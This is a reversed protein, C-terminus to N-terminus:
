KSRGIRSSRDFSTTSLMAGVMSAPERMPLPWRPDDGRGLRSGPDPSCEPCRPDARPEELIMEGTLANVRRYPLPGIEPRALGTVSFLFENAAHAAGVANLTIVSPAVVTPDEVYRQATREDETAAEEQLRGPPILGNCWLCGAGPSAPRVVSFVDLLRGTAKEVSAKSGVQAGPILYQATIANYLLRCRMSDAALFLYDCDLFQVAVAPTLFDGQVGTFTVRPNARRAVRETIQVKPRPTPPQARRPRGPLQLWKRWSSGLAHPAVDDVGADVVRPLNSIELIDPDAVTLHGVGVRALYEVLLSGVGGAGIVGVHLDQLIAQGRDGLLWSQRSFTTDTGAASIPAPRLFRIPQGLIKAATLSARGGRWWIDGAIAERALVLAGVARGRLLDLLAPYGREHSAFDDASFGVHDWGGHNHVALYCLSEDRCYLAADRVFNAALMHYGRQGAVYHKGDEALLVERALLRTGHPTRAVGAAVVAGHEDDDGPFLHEYLRAFLTAPFTLTLPEVIGTQDGNSTLTPKTAM